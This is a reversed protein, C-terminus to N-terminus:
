KKSEVLAKLNQIGQSFTAGVMKDCDILLSILKSMFGGEGNMSWTFRTSGGEPTLKYLVTNAGKMPKFMDLKM